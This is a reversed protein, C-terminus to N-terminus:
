RSRSRLLQRVEHEPTNGSSSELSQPVLLQYYRPADAEGPEFARYTITLETDGAWATGVRVPQAAGSPFLARIRVSDQARQKTADSRFPQNFRLRFRYEYPYFGLSFSAATHASFPASLPFDSDSPHGDIEIVELAGDERRLRKRCSQTLRNGFRDVAASSITLEYAGAPRWPSQPILVLTAEDPWVRRLAVQPELAVAAETRSHDMPKSFEIRIADDRSLAPMEDPSCVTDNTDGGPDPLALAPFGDEWSALAPAVRTVFPPVVDETVYYRLETGGIIRERDPTAVTGSLSIRYTQYHEWADKPALEVRTSEANWSLEFEIAPSITLAANFSEPTVARSFGLTIPDETAIVAGAHPLVEVLALRSGAAEQYYFQVHHSVRHVRGSRDPIQGEVALLYRTRPQLPSHPTFTATRGDWAISGEVATGLHSIRIGDHAADKDVSFRFRVTVADDTKLVAGDDSPHTEVPPDVPFEILNCGAVSAGAWLIALVSLVGTSRIGVLHRTKM